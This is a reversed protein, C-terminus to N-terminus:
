PTVPVSGGQAMVDYGRRLDGAARAWPAFAEEGTSARRRPRSRQPHGRVNISRFPVLSRENVFLAMQPQWFLANAYWAGLVGVVVHEGSEPSGVRDLFKKRAASWCMMLISDTGPVVRGPTFMRRRGSVPPLRRREM